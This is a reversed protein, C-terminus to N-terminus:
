KAHHKAWEVNERITEVTRQPTAHVSKFRKMGASIMVGAAIALVVAVTLGSAWLPIVMALAIVAVFLLFLAAYVGAVAGMAMMLIASKAKAAEETIESKALRVESRVIEQVNGIIDQVVVSFPREGTM